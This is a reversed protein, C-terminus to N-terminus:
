LVKVPGPFGGLINKGMGSWSTDGRWREFRLKFAIDQCLGFSLVGEPQVSLHCRYRGKLASILTEAICTSIHNNLEKM